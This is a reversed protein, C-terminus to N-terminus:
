LCHFTFFQACSTVVGGEYVAVKIIVYNREKQLSYYNNAGDFFFGCLDLLSM